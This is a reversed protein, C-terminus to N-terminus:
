RPPNDRKSVLRQLEDKSIKGREAMEHHKRCLAIINNDDLLLDPRDNVKIIHHAEIADYTIIGNALCYSCCYYSREKIEIAKRKWANLYRVADNATKNYRKYVPRKGCDYQKDHIRGCYPCSKLRGM